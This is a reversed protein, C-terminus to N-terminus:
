TCPKKTNKQIARLAMLQVTKAKVIEPPFDPGIGIDRLRAKV